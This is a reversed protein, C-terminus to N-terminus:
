SATLRVALVSMPVSSVSFLDCGDSASLSLLEILLLLEEDVSASM